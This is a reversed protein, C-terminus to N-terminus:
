LTSWDVTDFQNWSSAAFLADFADWDRADNTEDFFDWSFAGLREEMYPDDVLVYPMTWVRLGSPQYGVASPNGYAFVGVPPLDFIVAGSRYLLPEGSALLDLFEASQATSVLLSFTGELDGTAAYRVVPRPRGPIRFRGQSVELAVDLSGRLLGVTLSRQGNLSQLVFDGDFPIVIPDSSETVSASAFTYVIARNGPGRNDTLTLQDGDGVGAGGPVSWTHTGDSGTLTWLEGDPTADVILQVRQPSGGGVLAATIM